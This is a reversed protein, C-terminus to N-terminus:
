GAQDSQVIQRYEIGVRPRPQNWLSLQSGIDFHIINFKDFSSTISRRVYSHPYFIRALSRSFFQFHYPTTLKIGGILGNEFQIPLEFFKACKPGSLVSAGVTLWSKSIPRLVFFKDCWVLKTGKDVALNDVLVYEAGLSFSIKSEEPGKRNDIMACTIEGYALISIVGCLMGM